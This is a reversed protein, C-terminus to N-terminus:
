LIETFTGGGLKEALKEELSSRESETVASSEATRIGAGASSKSNQIGSAAKELLQQTIGKMGQAAASVCAHIVANKIDRGCFTSFTLALANLDIDGETPISPLLHKQWINWRSASDPMPFEVHRLRSHFAQDYNGILNTAFIVLGHFQELCILIQSRMSNIAQESGQSVSTLRRSLLSDAEDIFLVAEQQQASKFLAAVNKPGEGHYKSEIDAYSACIINKNISHAVAHAAMTKGTGPSGHFNLASRPFPEIASLGWNSFVQKEFRIVDLANQIDDRVGEPLVMSDFSYLPRSASFASSPEEQKKFPTHRSRASTEPAAPIAPEEFNENFNGEDDFLSLLEEGYVTSVTDASVSMGDFSKNLATILRSSFLRSSTDTISNKEIGDIKVTIRNM